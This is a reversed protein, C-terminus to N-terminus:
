HVCGRADPVCVGMLVIVKVLIAKKGEEREENKDVGYKLLQLKVEKWM